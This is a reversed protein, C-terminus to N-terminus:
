HFQLLFIENKSEIQQNNKLNGLGRRVKKTQEYYVPVHEETWKFGRASYKLTCTWADQVAPLLGAQKLLQGTHSNEFKGGARYTDFGILGGTLGFLLFTALLFSCCVTTAGTRSSKSSKAAKSKKSAVKDQVQQSLSHSFPLSFSVILKLNLPASPILSAIKAIAFLFGILRFSQINLLTHTLPVQGIDRALTEVENGFCSGSSCSNQYDFPVNLNVTAYLSSQTPSHCLEITM